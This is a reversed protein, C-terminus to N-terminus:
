MTKNKYIVKVRPNIKEDPKKNVTVMCIPDRARRVHRQLTDRDQITQLIEFGKKWFITEENKNHKTLESHFNKWYSKKCTLDTLQQFPYFMLLAMKAYMERKDISVETPNKANLQLENLACLKDKPLAIRPITPQKLETLYSVKYGPHTQNFKYRRAGRVKNHSGEDSNFQSTNYSKFTKKYRRTLDYFCINKFEDESLWHLYDDALSEPWTITENNLKNSQIRVNTIKGELTAEM